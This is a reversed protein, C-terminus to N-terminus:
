PQTAQWAGPRQGTERLFFASFNSADTFGLREACRTATLRDHALLRKAELLLRENIHSKASRGTAAHAARSLTRPSYGLVSAYYRVEHHTQFHREVIARFRQFVTSGAEQDAPLPSLRALLASLLLSPIETGSPARNEHETELRLHEVAATVLRWSPAPATWSAATAAGSLPHRASPQPATPVFLVIDGTLEVIDTWRHVVGPGILVVTREALAHTRFDLVASGHGARIVALVYFDGRQTRGRNRRRLSDFTLVEAQTQSPGAAQYTMQLIESM